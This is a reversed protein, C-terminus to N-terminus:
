VSWKSMRSCWQKGNVGDTSNLERYWSSSLRPWWWFEQNKNENQKRHFVLGVTGEYLLRAGMMGNRVRLWWINKKRKTENLNNNLKLHCAMSLFFIIANTLNSASQFQFHIKKMVHFYITKFPTFKTLMCM